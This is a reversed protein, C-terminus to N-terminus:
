AAVARPVRGAVCARCRTYSKKSTPGGCAACIGKAGAPPHAAWYSQRCETSCAALSAESFSLPRHVPNGCGVCPQVVSKGELSCPRSCYRASVRGEFDKGCAACPKTRAVRRQEINCAQSCFRRARTSRYLAFEKGCRECKGTWTPMLGLHYVLVETRAHELDAIYEKRGSVELVQNDDVWAVGNLGDLILKLMNDVDRRQRTASFFIGIVGFAGTGDPVANTALRYSREVALEATRTGRPTYSHGGKTFRSRAKSVPEGNVTFRALVLQDRWERTLGFWAAEDHAESVRM